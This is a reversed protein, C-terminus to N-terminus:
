CRCGWARFSLRLPKPKSALDPDRDGSIPREPGTAGEATVALNVPPYNGGLGAQQPPRFRVRRRSQLTKATLLLCSVCTSASVSISRSRPEIGRAEVKARGEEGGQFVACFAQKGPNEQRSVKTTETSPFRLFDGSNAGLLALNPSLNKPPKGATGTAALSEAAPASATTPIPLAQVAAALDYARSHTYRSTMSYTSHRALDQHERPSVGTKGIMTIYGHRLSHFDAYRGQADCYALFDSQEAEARQRADQFGSLWKVRAEILDTRITYVAKRRWKGPWVPEGALKDRLFDGLVRAVDLPLPQVALKRNKTCSAEVTATPADGDLHFSEPTMSALESARFGTAAAALYLFYREMGTLCRISKPSQRAADLLLGLEDPSLDRRAHRVDGTYAFRSLGALADLVSRKDRWLWRTFGKVAALYDNVTKTNKSQRLSGLFEVAASSQIDGIKIFRCGDLIATLRSFTRAVYDSTNGKAALYRRFDEAHDALPRKAHEECPDVLGADLRIGRRELEAAKNETAKKDRYGKVRHREGDPTYYRIHWTRSKKKTRKGTKPDTVTYSPRFVEAM